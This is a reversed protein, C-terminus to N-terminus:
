PESNGALLRLAMNAQHAACLAVRAATLGPGDAADSVGDGCLYFKESVRRTRIANSSGLGAMGSAAILYKHPFRELVVNVLMAKSQPDDFAECIVDAEALLSFISPSGAAVGGNKRGTEGDAAGAGGAKGAAEDAERFSAASVKGAVAVVDLYPAIEHLNATLAETKLMGVQAAKYQQRNLNTVDVRDFDVLILRGVGARALMVAINSGLGGLGLIAVTAGAFTEYLEEGLRGALARAMEGRGPIARGPANAGSPIVPGHGRGRASLPIKKYSEAM